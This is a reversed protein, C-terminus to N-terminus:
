TFSLFADCEHVSRALDFQSGWVFGPVEGVGRERANQACLAVRAGKKVLDRFKETGVNNVGDYMFFIEVHHGARLAADAIGIVTAADRCEPGTTLLIGLKRPSEM